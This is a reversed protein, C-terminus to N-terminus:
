YIQRKITKSSTFTKNQNKIAKTNLKHFFTSEKGQEM